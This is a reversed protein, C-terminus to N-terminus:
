ESWGQEGILPVFRVGGLDAQDFETESRRTVKLLIQRTETTGVPVVLRGGIALQRKLAPPVMPGGASVLIADFPAEEPWGVSGDGIRLEVNRYGLRRLRERAIEGLAPHREIAHIRNAIEAMVAVAYGSGAGVELVSDGPKLEAAEIMLAVVYPQSITQGEGAPLARDAYALEEFGPAVFVERPVRQMAALVHPARVGRRALQREVMRERARAFAALDDRSPTWAM